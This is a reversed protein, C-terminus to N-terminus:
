FWPKPNRHQQIWRAAYQPSTQFAQYFEYEENSLPIVDDVLFSLTRIDSNIGKELPVFQSSSCIEVVTSSHSSVLPIELLFSRSYIPYRNILNGNISISITMTKSLHKRGTLLLKKMPYQPDIQIGIRFQPPVWSDQYRNMSLIKPTNGLVSHSKFLNLYWTVGKKSYRLLFPKLWHNSVTGFNKVSTKIIEPIGTDAFHAVTKCKPHLRSQALFHETYGIPFHKSIRMWLDYDMCFNLGEDVGGVAEFVTKRIFAAPQCIICSNFLSKRQFPQKVPYSNIIENKENIHYAKGYVMSWEPTHQLTEVATRIAGPLYLDDSNLWGIIEGKAMNLGKNIAHSQGRDPESIFHFRESLHSYKKLIELTGDTSRGDIVIHEIHPYDQTLVSQITEEIFPAQNFSPTIVSVLPLETNHM